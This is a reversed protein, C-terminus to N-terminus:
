NFEDLKVYVLVQMEARTFRQINMFHCLTALLFQLSFHTPCKTDLGHKKKKLIELSKRSLSINKHQTFEFKEAGPSVHLCYCQLHTMCTFILTTCKYLFINGQAPFTELKNINNCTYLYFSVAQREATGLHKM